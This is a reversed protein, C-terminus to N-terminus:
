RCDMAPRCPRDGAMAERPMSRTGLLVVACALYGGYLVAHWPTFFTEDVRGHTHAWGDLFLGSIFVASLVTMIWDIGPTIPPRNPGPPSGSRNSDQM